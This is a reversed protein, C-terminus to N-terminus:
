FDMTTESLGRERSHDQHAFFVDIDLRSAIDKHGAFESVNDVTM